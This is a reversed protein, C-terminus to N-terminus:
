NESSSSLFSTNGDLQPLPSLQDLFSYRNYTPINYSNEIKVNRIVSPRVPNSNGERQVDQRTKSLREKFMKLPDYKQRPPSVPTNSPSERYDKQKWGHFSQHHNNTIPIGASKLITLISAMFVKRGDPGYMHLGDYHNLEPNGFIKLHNEDLHHPITHDGITIQNKFPSNCWIDFLIADGLRSLQPKLELPDTTIPDFRPPRRLIIVKQLSPYSHLASEALSFMKQNATLIEDKFFLLKKDPDVKTDLNTIEITGGGLVLIDYDCDDLENEIVDLFNKNPFKGGASDATVAYANVPKVVMDVRKALENFDLNSSVSDAIWLM